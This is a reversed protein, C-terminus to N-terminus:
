MLFNYVMSKDLWHSTYQWVTDYGACLSRDYMCTHYCSLFNLGYEINSNPRYVGFVILMGLTECASSYNPTRRSVARVWYCNLVMEVNVTIHVKFKSLIDNYTSAPSM